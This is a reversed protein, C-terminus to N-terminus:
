LESKLDEKKKSKFNMAASNICYRKGTPKPGDDFLHGLHAGCKSCIVETRVMQYSTDPRLTVSGERAEDWFAPWGSNSEFKESTRFIENGCVVCTFTGDSNVKLFEGSFARETGHEQTVYYQMSSLELKLKEKKMYSMGGEGTDPLKHDPVAATASSNMRPIKTNEYIALVSHDRSVQIFTDMLKNRNRLELAEAFCAM